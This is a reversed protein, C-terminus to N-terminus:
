RFYCTLIFNVQFEKEGSDFPRKISLALGIPATKFQKAVLVKGSHTVDNDAEFDVKIEYQATM